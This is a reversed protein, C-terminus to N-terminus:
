WRGWQGRRHQAYASGTCPSPLMWTSGLPLIAGHGRVLRGGPGARDAPPDEPDRQGDAEHRQQVDGDDVDRDRRHLRAQPRGGGGDLAPHRPVGEREAQRQDRTAAQPVHVPSQASIIIPRVPKM